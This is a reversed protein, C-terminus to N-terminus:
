WTRNKPLARNDSKPAPQIYLTKKLRTSAFLEEARRVRERLQQLALYRTTLVANSMNASTSSERKM